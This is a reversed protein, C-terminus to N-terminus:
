SGASRLPRGESDRAMVMGQAQVRVYSGDKGRLRLEVSFRDAPQRGPAPLLQGLAHEVAARDDPHVHRLWEPYTLEFEDPGYGLLAKYRPSFVLKASVGDDARETRWAGEGANELAFEYLREADMRRQKAEQAAAREGTLARKLGAYRWLAAGMAALLTLVAIASAYLASVDPDPAQYLFGELPFGHPLKGAAAYEDAITRWRAANIYGPEVVALDLLPVMHQAEYLLQERSLREPYRARILDAIEYPHEMAYVLGKLTAARMAQARKPHERLESETTFLVDGYFDIGAARPSVMDFPIHARQLVWPTDTSFAAMADIRGSGLDEAHFSPDVRKYPEAGIRHLYRALEVREPAFMIVAGRLPVAKGDEGHRIALTAPSHQFLTALVVVPKGQARQLLLETNHVGYQANGNLLPAAPDGGRPLELLNVELGADKYFGRAQAAYFAAFQFQHSWKLQVTVRDLACAPLGWALALAAVCARVRLGRALRFRTLRVAPM